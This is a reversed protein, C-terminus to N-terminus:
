GASEIDQLYKSINGGHLILMMAHQEDAVWMKTYSGFIYYPSRLLRERQLLQRSFIPSTVEVIQGPIRAQRTFFKYGPVDLRLSASNTPNYWWRYQFEPLDDIGAAHLAHSQWQSQLDPKTSLTVM